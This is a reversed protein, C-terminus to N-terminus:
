SDGVEGFLCLQLSSLLKCDHRFHSRDTVKRANRCSVQVVITADTELLGM